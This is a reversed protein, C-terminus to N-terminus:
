RQYLVDSYHSIIYTKHTLTKVFTFNPKTGSKDDFFQGIGGLFVCVIRRVSRDREGARAQMCM